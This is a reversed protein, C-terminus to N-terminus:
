HNATGVTVPLMGVSDALVALRQKQWPIDITQQASPSRNTLSKLAKLHGRFAATRQRLAAAHSSYAQWSSM